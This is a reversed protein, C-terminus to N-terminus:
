GGNTHDTDVVTYTATSSSYNMNVNANVSNYWYFTYAGMISFSSQEAVNMNFTMQNNQFEVSSVSSTIETGTWGSPNV